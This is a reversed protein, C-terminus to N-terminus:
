AYFTEREGAKGPKVNIKTYKDNVHKGQVRLNVSGDFNVATIWGIEHNGAHNTYNVCAELEVKGDSQPLAIEMDTAKANKAETDMRLFEAYSEDTAKDGMLKGFEERTM